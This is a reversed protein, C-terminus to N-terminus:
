LFGSIFELRCNYFLVNYLRVMFVKKIKRKVDDVSDLLDIKSEQLIYLSVKVLM